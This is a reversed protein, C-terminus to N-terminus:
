CVPVEEQVTVRELKNLCYLERCYSRRVKGSSTKPLTSPKILTLEAIRLGHKDSIDKRSRALIEQFTSANLQALAHRQVEAVVILKSDSEDDVVFAAAGNPKFADHSEYITSEIDGPYHNQGRVIILDKLRGSIFLECEHRFGLDGTRLFPGRGDATYAQFTATSLALNGWYGSAVSSGAVWIEGIRDDALVRKSEPDVIEILHDGYPRGCGVLQVGCPHERVINRALQASDVALVKTMVDPSGGSVFLTAEAMGYCPYFADRRFGCREFKRSFADIVKAKVPEAGNYAVRWSSLDLGAMDEDTVRDVCLEYAFNPAGSTTARWESIAQLWVKPSTLFTMPPFLISPIGLYLPQFVNGILGMDHYLPLWGVFVTNGDHGFATQIQSENNLLNAHSIMVGKPTGTSGSTYQLLALSTSTLEPKHFARQANDSITDTCQWDMDPLATTLDRCIRILTQRTATNTLLTQSGANAMIGTLRSLVRRTQLPQVPVAVMGAAFCGVIAEIFDLGSQYMLLIREGEAHDQQLQAAIAEARQLLRSYSLKRANGQGDLFVYATANPQEAAHRRVIDFLTCEKRSARVQSM